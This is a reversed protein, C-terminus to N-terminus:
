SGDVPSMVFGYHMPQDGPITYKDMTRKGWSNDGGVGHVRLDLNLHIFARRPLDQPHAAGELDAETYPWARVTLPQLGRVRIGAGDVGAFTISRVDTRAGNDQPHIYDTWFQNLPLQYRGLFASTRRDWYNEHPGRGHWALDDFGAPIGLCVGFKPMLPMRAGAPPQYDAEVQIEGRANIRYTLDYAAVADAVPLAFGFSVVALGEELRADSRTLRRQAAADRWAGLRQAYRNSAQNRNAPKWFSPELPERLLEDGRIKWSTLAGTAADLAVAFGDGAVRVVGAEGDDVTLAGDEATVPTFTPERLVFQERAVIHRAPAWLTEDALRVEIELLVESGGEPLPRRFGVDLVLEEGPAVAPAPLDGEERVRGDVLVRYGWAFADLSLFDYRNRILIQSPAIENRTFHVYQYVKGVEHYHPHPVRDPGVLGNICFDADNPQDGFDGGYAWYEGDRLSLQHPDQDWRLPAGSLPKAIGQDVWDWIAAGVIEPHQYIVDWHEQLNGLSNGMAHAYERINAGKEHGAAVFDLYDQVSPYDIDHWDSVALDGHYFYPRTRDVAEMARRMAALNRGSGGENGLSWIVVCAHNKDREVMSVGRDVHALEWAPNDGLEPSGTGFGHAEQNAEDMVYLGYEDCLAYWRPDNPYHSTRVSNINAQKILTVDRIMTELDVHRGMRPHHEHRNVGKLKISRGNVWFQKDRMAVERFGVRWPIAQSARGQADELWLVLPYLVPTEASWLTPAAVEARLVASVEEGAAAEPVPAQWAAIEGGAPDRLRARVTWGRAPEGGQNRVDVAVSLVADRYADDLDTVVHFDRIHVPPRALLDVDRFIGSLRWMDQDELYSGDSWRYVEVALTNEGERLRETVDFEDPMMSDQGYGVREGNVWVYFASEVGAFHVFVRMGEWAAPVTFARRYRGVPNRLQYSTFQEPPDLTVRPHAPRFPYRINTYIPVGFGQMQWNGPVVIEEWGSVDFDPRYFPPPEEEPRPSWAFNWRGNLSQTWSSDGGAEARGVDPHVRFAARPPERDIQVVAPNEWDVAQAPALGPLGLLGTVVWRSLVKV